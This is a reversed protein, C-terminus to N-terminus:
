RNKLAGYLMWLATQAARSRVGERAGPFVFKNALPEAGKM